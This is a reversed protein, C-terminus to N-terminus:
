RGRVVRRSSITTEKADVATLHMPVDDTPLDPHEPTMHM